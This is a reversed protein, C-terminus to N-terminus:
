LRDGVLLHPHRGRFCTPPTPPTRHSQRTRRADPCLRSCCTLSGARGERSWAPHQSVGREQPSEKRTSLTTLSATSETFTVLSPVTFLPPLVLDNDPLPVSLSRWPCLQLDLPLHENKAARHLHGRISPSRWISFQKLKQSKRSSEVYFFGEGEQYRGLAGGGGFM